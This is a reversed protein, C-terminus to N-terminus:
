LSIFNKSCPLFSLSYLIILKLEVWLLPKKFIHKTKLIHKELQLPSIEKHCYDRKKFHYLVGGETLPEWLNFHIRFFSELPMVPLLPTANEVQNNTNQLFLFFGRGNSMRLYFFFYNNNIWEEHLLNSNGIPLYFSASKTGFLKYNMNAYSPHSLSLSFPLIIAVSFPEQLGKPKNQM